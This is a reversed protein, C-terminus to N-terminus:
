APPHPDTGLLRGVRASPTEDGWVRRRTHDPLALAVRERVGGLLHHSAEQERTGGDDGLLYPYEGVLHGDEVRQDGHTDGEPDAVAGEVLRVGVALRLDPPDGHAKEGQHDTAKPDTSASASANVAGM